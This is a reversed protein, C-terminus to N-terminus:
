TTGSRPPALGLHHWVQHWVETTVAEKAAKAAAKLQSKHARVRALSEADTIDAVSFHTGPDGFPQSAEQWGPPRVGLQKGLLAM